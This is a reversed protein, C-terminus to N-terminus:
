RTTQPRRGPAAPSLLLPIFEAQPVTMLARAEAATALEEQEAVWRRLLNANLRHHLAVAEAQAHRPFVHAM